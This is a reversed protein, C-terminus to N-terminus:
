TGGHATVPEGEGEHREERQGRGAGGLRRLPHHVDRHLILEFVAVLGARHAAVHDHEDVGFALPGLRRLLEAAPQMNVEVGGGRLDRRRFPAALGHDAQDAPGDARPHGVHAHDGHRAQRFQGAGHVRDGPRLHPFVRGVHRHPEVELAPELVGITHMGALRVNQEDVGGARHM